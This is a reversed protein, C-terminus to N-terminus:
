LNKKRLAAAMFGKRFMEDFAQQSQRDEEIKMKEPDIVSPAALCAIKRRKAEDFGRRFSVYLAKQSQRDEEAKVKGQDAVSITARCLPCKKVDGPMAVLSSLCTFCVWHGIKNPVGSSNLCALKLGDTTKKSDICVPCDLKIIAKSSVHAAFLNVPVQLVFLNSLFFVKLIGNM